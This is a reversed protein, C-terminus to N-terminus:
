SRNGRRPRRSGCSSDYDAVGNVTRENLFEELGAARYRVNRGIRVFKLPYRKTCRWVMLTGPTVQLVEAAQQTNLLDSM